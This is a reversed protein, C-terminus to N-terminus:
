DTQRFLNWRTKRSNREAGYGLPLNYIENVSNDIEIVEKLSILKYNTIKHDSQGCLFGWQGDDANHTVLLIEREKNIVHDCAICVVNEEEDFNFRTNNFLKKM